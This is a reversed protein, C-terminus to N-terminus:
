LSPMSTELELDITEVEWGDSAALIVLSRWGVPMLGVLLTRLRPVPNPAPAETLTLNLGFGSVWLTSFCASYITYIVKLVNGGFQPDM